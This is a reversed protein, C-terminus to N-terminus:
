QTLLDFCPVDTETGKFIKAANRLFVLLTSTPVFSVKGYVYRDAKTAVTKAFLVLLLYVCSWRTTLGRAM